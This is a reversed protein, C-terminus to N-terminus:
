RSRKASRRPSPWWRLQILWSSASRSEDGLQITGECQQGGAKAFRQAGFCADGPLRLGGDGTLSLNLGWGAQTCVMLSRM